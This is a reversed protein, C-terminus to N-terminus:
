RRRFSFGHNAANCTTNTAIYAIYGNWQGALTAVPVEGSVGYVTIIESNAFGAGTINETFAFTFSISNGSVVGSTLNSSVDGLSMEPGTDPARTLNVALQTGSQTVTATYVRQRVRSPFNSGGPCATSAELVLTYTGAINAPTSSTPATPTSPTKSDGGCGIVALLLLLALDKMAPEPLAM